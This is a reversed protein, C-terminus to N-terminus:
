EATVEIVDDEENLGRAVLDCDLLGFLVKLEKIDFVEVLEGVYVLDVSAVFVEEAVGAPEKVGM